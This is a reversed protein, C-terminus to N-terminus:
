RRGQERAAAADEGLLEIERPSLHRSMVVVHALTPLLVAPKGPQLEGQLWDGCRVEVSAPLDLAYETTTSGVMLEVDRLGDYWQTVAVVRGRVLASKQVYQV